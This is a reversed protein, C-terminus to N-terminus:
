AVAARARIGFSALSVTVRFALAALLEAPKATSLLGVIMRLTILPIVAGVLAGTGVGAL